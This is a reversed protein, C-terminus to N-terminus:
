AQPASVMDKWHLALPKPLKLVTVLTNGSGYVYLSDGHLRLERDRGYYMCNKDYVQDLWKRLQGRTDERCVGELWVKEAMRRAAKRTLGNREKMRDEAHRSLAATM